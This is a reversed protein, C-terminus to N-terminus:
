LQLTKAEEKPSANMESHTIGSGASMVQVEGFPITGETGMSDRHKLGGELPIPIIEMKAHAHSGFGRGGAITDDNLIRSLGFQQRELNNCNWIFVLFQRQAM